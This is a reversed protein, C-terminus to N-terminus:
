NYSYRKSLCKCTARANEEVDLHAGVLSSQFRLNLRRKMHVSYSREFEANSAEGFILFVTHVMVVESRGSCM